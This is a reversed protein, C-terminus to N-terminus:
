DDTLAGYHFFQCWNNKPLSQYFEDWLDEQGTAMLYDLYNSYGPKEQEAKTENIWYVRYIEGREELRKLAAWTLLHKHDGDVGFVDQSIAYARIGKSGARKIRSQVLRCLGEVALSATTNKLATLMLPFLLLQVRHQETAYVNVLSYDSDLLRMISM